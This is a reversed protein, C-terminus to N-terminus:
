VPLRIGLIHPRQEAAGNGSDHKGSFLYSDAVLYACTWQSERRDGIKSEESKMKMM